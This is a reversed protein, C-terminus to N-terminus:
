TGSVDDDSGLFKVVQVSGGSWASIFMDDAVWSVSCAHTGTAGKWPLNCLEVREATDYVRVIDGICVAIYMGSPSFALHVSRAIASITPKADLRLCEVYQLSSM